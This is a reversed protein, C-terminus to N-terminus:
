RVARALSDVHEENLGFRCYYEEVAEDAGFVRRLEPDVLRVTMAEGVLSCLLEDVFLPSSGIAAGYEAHHADRIGLVDRAIEIVGHQFGACTGLCPRRHERAFRIGALAGDMSAFPGGPACWVADADHLTTGTDHELTPTAHWQVDVDIGLDSASHSLATEITDQPAHGLVRDGVVAVKVTRRAVGHDDM